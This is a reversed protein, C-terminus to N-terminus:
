PKTRALFIVHIDHEGRYVADLEDGVVQVFLSLCLKAALKTEGQVKRRPRTRLVGFELKKCVALFYGARIVAFIGYGYGFRNGKGKRVNRNGEVFRFAHFVKGFVICSNGNREIRLKREAQIDAGEIRSIGCDYTCAGTDDIGIAVADIGYARNRVHFNVNQFNFFHAGVAGRATGVTFIGEENVGSRVPLKNGVLDIRAVGVVYVSVVLKSRIDVELACGNRNHTVTRVNAAHLRVEATVEVTHTVGNGVEFNFFLIGRVNTQEAVNNGVKFVGVETDDQVQLNGVEGDASAHVTIRLFHKAHACDDTATDACVYQVARYCVTVNFYVAVIVVRCKCAAGDTKQLGCEKVKAGILATYRGLNCVDANRVGVNVRQRAENGCDATDNTVGINRVIERRCAKDVAVCVVYEAIACDMRTANNTLKARVRGHEVRICRTANRCAAVDVVKHIHSIIAVSISATDNAIRFVFRCNNVTEGRSAYISGSHQACAILLGATRNRFDVGCVRMARVRNCRISSVVVVRKAAYVAVNVQSTGFEDKAVQTPIFEVPRVAKATFVGGEVVFAVIRVAEVQFGYENTRLNAALVAVRYAEFAVSRQGESDDGAFNSQLFEHKTVVVLNGVAEEEIFSTRM